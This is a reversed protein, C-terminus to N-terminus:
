AGATDLLAEGQMCTAGSDDRTEVEVQGGAHRALV